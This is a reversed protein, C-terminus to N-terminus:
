PLLLPLTPLPLLPLYVISSGKILFPCLVCQPQVFFTLTSSRCSHSFQLSSHCSNSLFTTSDSLFPSPQPLVTAPYTQSLVPSLLTLTFLSMLLLSAFSFHSSYRPILLCFVLHHFYGLIESLSRNPPAEGRFVPHCASGVCFGM